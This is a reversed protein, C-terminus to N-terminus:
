TFTVPSVQKENRNGVAYIGVASPETAAHLVINRNDNLGAMIMPGWLTRTQVEYRQEGSRM